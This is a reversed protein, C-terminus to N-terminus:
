QIWIVCGSNTLGSIMSQSCAHIQAISSHESKNISSRDCLSCESGLGYPEKMGASSFSTTETRTMKNEFTAGSDLSVAVLVSFSM